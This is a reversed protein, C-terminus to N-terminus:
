RLILPLFLNYVRTITFSWFATSSGNSYITGGVNIARVHWYYTTNTSLGSLAKSTSLGNDTWSSCANDNTTDFCYEYSTAGTSTAWILIPSTSAFTSGNLPASKDFAGPTSPVTAFSWFTTSAGNSYTTGNTNNARVHWYYTTGYALGSLAKSTSAGNDTWSSCANDNTTDYCYEYSTADTSAAWSLTPSTSIATAGNPPASKDFAGPLTGPLSAATTFSWFATSSGNSYTTGGTNNARVQWYYTTSSTLGSLAKSTSTSNDTWSSCANDNTIDYCYEYSTAGTSAAWSLTPSTSIGTAGNAPTDKNFSAPPAVGATVGNSVGDESWLGGENRAGVTVYYPQGSTLNLGTRTMSTTISSVYTWAVVDRAGPTTGIAYRYQTIPSEADSSSWSASLNTLTGDGSAAAIPMTPPTTDSIFGAYDVAFSFRTDTPIEMGDTDKASSVSITHTGRPVLSTIDYTASWTHDDLWQGNDLVSYDAYPSTAGFTVIPDASPDMSKSFTLTFTAQQIGVPDPTVIASWLFAPASSDPATLLPQYFVQGPNFDDLYDYILGDIVTTDTTGWYNSTATVDQNSDTSRYFIYNVQNGAWNNNQYTGGGGWKFYILSDLWNGIFTNSTVTPAGGSFINIVSCRGNCSTQGQGNNAFVNHSIVPSGSYIDVGFGATYGPGTSNTVRNYEVITLVDGRLISIGRTRILRNRAILSGNPTSSCNVIGPGTQDVILNDTAEYRRGNIEATAIAAGQNNIFTSNRVAFTGSNPAGMGGVPDNYHVVAYDCGGVWQGAYTASNSIFTDNSIYPLASLIGIGTGYEIRANRIISGSVYNGDADVIASTATAVFNIPGWAGYTTSAASTFLIPNDPQGDAVLTGAVQLIKGAGFRVQTGPQITLTAGSNIQVNSIIEYARDNTWTMDTTIFGGVQVTSNETSITLPLVVNVGGAGNITLSFAIAHAYPASSSVSFTFPIANIATAYTDIDGYFASASTVTVYPDSTSLTGTANTVTGWANQITVMLSVASGPAPTGNTVGDIAYSSVNLLPTATATTATQANIRGSGLMGIYAPNASEINDTTHVIQARILNASWDPHLTRLLGALGAAFPSAISTGSGNAWDGGLATTRINVAPASVDVWAAYNSFDLKTDDEATGAVALVNDYAAPYFPTDLNDNGAGAVVAVGYTNVATDIANKLTNSNAYGGLSLNIVKAGKQAAYLVGAAIDSYNAAGSAQMVKVPMIRCEPCVGVIGAGNGGIAAAVGAVLTGHGNDDWVDNSSFVFNWGNVDDIYGNSDDDIGNGAIEGPNTWLNNQLDVHTLDIGSDIVAITVTPAGYTASWAGEINIKAMGWQQSYLPDDITLQQVALAPSLRSSTPAHNLNPIDAPYAIYDPEAFVVDPNASLEAVVNDIDTGPKLRIKYIRALPSTGGGKNQLENTQGATLLPTVSSVGLPSLDADLYTSNTKYLHSPKGKPDKALNIGQKVEVIVVGPVYTPASSDSTETLALSPQKSELNAKSYAPQANAFTMLVLLIALTSSTIRNM